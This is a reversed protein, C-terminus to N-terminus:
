AAEILMRHISSTSIDFEEWDAKNYHHKGIFQSLSYMLNGEVLEGFAIEKVKISCCQYYLNFM